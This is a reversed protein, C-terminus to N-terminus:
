EANLSMRLIGLHPGTPDRELGYVAGQPGPRRGMLEELEPWKEDEWDTQWLDRTERLRDRRSAGVIVAAVGPRDLVWRLAALATSVGHREATAALAQLTEQLAEWGGAEEVILRYKTLSRNAEADAGDRQGRYRDSLLGGGLAGYCLLGIGHQQCWSAFEQEPRRDLVSYQVQVATVQVGAGVVGAVHELDFNTLGLHRIKGARRLDDLWMAAEIAGPVAYDWWHFQLLDIADRGLRRLSRDIAQEVTRRDLTALASRDPVYKTHIQVRSPDELTAVFRGLSEEVGTYIDACDFTTYGAEIGARWRQSIEEFADSAAGHDAALQWCGTVLPSILYGPALEISKM